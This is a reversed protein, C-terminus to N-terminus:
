RTLQVSGFVKSIQARNAALQNAPVLATFQLTRLGNRYIRTQGVFKVPARSTATPTTISYTVARATQGNVKLTKSSVLKDRSATLLGNQVSDFYSKQSLKAAAAPLTIPVISYSVPKLPTAFYEITGGGLGAPKPRTGTQPKQPLYLSFGYKKSMFTPKTASQAQAPPTAVDLPMLSLVGLTAGLLLTNKM